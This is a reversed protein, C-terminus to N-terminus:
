QYLFIKGNLKGQLNWFLLSVFGWIQEVYILDGITNENHGIGIKLFLHFEM